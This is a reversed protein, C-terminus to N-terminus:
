PKDAVPLILKVAVEEGEKVGSLIETQEEGRAGITVEARQVQNPGTVRYVVQRGGEFKIAANPLTLVNSSEFFVIRVHTTMEPKLFAADAGFVKVIALYYVINDKVMPQPHIKDIEGKFLRDPFTDVYYEVRQGLGVKGIDTEDVYIWMELLSPDLVTILNAVQLGAVITEGEQATVDSVVGAVPAYISTYTLRVQQQELQAVHEEINAAAIKKQTAYEDQLRKLIARTGEYQSRAKDLEDKTTYDYKILEREREHVTRAYEYNAKAEKIREPYTLETQRLTEQAAAVSAQQQEIARRIERDDILAVLQGKEVRDGIKVNMKVITGTARTGIKVLAGVQPKVIGTEVLVGRLDGRQVRTSEMVKVEPRSFLRGIVLAGVLVSVVAAVVLVIKKV